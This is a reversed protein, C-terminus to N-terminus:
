YKALVTCFERSFKSRFSTLLVVAISQWCSIKITIFEVRLLWEEERQFTTAWQMAKVQRRAESVTAPLHILSDNEITIAAIQVLPLVYNWSSFNQHQHACLVPVLFHRVKFCRRKVLSFFPQPIGWGNKETFRLFLFLIRTRDFISVVSKVFELRQRKKARGM